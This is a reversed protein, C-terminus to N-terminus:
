SIIELSFDKNKVSHTLYGLSIRDAFHVYDTITEPTIGGSLEIMISSNISKIKRSVKEAREAPFNDLMIVDVNMQAAQLAQKENEVEVEITKDTVKNVIVEITKQFSGMAAIHNDKIMVADFLGFRHSDGGGITVAKKEYRRFGPTTKRTAAIKVNPNVQRCKKVLKNTETAIGSMKGLFNLALREGILIAKVPGHITAIVEKKQVQKGDETKMDVKAGTKQFIEKAEELGALVANDKAIIQAKKTETTFLANSTVDGEGNLDENLFRDIEDM